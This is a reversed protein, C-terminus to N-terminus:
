ELNRIFLLQNIINKNCHIDIFKLEWNVALFIFGEVLFDLLKAGVGFGRLASEGLFSFIDEEGNFFKGMTLAEANGFWNFGLATGEFFLLM